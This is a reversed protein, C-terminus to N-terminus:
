FGKPMAMPKEMGQLILDCLNFKALSEVERPTQELAQAYNKRAVFYHHMVEKTKKRKSAQYKAYGMAFHVNGIYKYCYTLDSKHRREDHETDKLVMNLVRVNYELAKELNGARYYASAINFNLNEHAELNKGPALSEMKDLMTQAQNFFAHAQELDGVFYASVGRLRLSNFLFSSQQGEDGEFLWAGLADVEKYISDALFFQSLDACLPAMNYLARLRETLYRNTQKTGLYEYLNYSRRLHYISQANDGLRYQIRGMTLHLRARQIADVHPNGNVNALSDYLMVARSGLNLAENPRSRRNANNAHMSLLEAYVHRDDQMRREYNQMYYEVINSQRLDTALNILLRLPDLSISDIQVVRQMIQLGLTTNAREGSLELLMVYREISNYVPEGAEFRQVLDRHQYRDIAEPFLGEKVLDLISLEWDPVTSFDQNAFFDIYTEFASLGQTFQQRELDKVQTFYNKTGTQFAKHQAQISDVPLDYSTGGVTEQALLAQLSMFLIGFAIFIKKM